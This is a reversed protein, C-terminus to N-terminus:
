PRDHRRMTWSRRWPFCGFSAAISASGRMWDAVTSRRSRSAAEFGRKALESKIRNLEDTNDYPGLRVRYRVGKDPLTGQQVNAQWGAFALRAKLNEADAEAAFSGAQLWFREAPKAAAGPDASAM